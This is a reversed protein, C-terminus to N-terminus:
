KFNKTENYKIKYSPIIVFLTEEQRHFKKHVLFRLINM